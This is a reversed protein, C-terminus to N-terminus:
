VLYGNDELFDLRYNSNTVFLFLCDGDATVTQECICNKPYWIFNGPGFVGHATVMAGKIIYVGFACNFRCKPKRFGAPYRSFNIVMGTDGDVIMQKDYFPNGIPEEKEIWGSSEFINFSDFEARLLKESFIDESVIKRGAPYNENDVDFPESRNTIFLFRCDNNEPAGAVYSNGAPNWLFAGPGFIQEGAKYEGDIVYIGFAAHRSSVVERFGAGYHAFKFEAGNLIDQVMRKDYFYHGDREERETWGVEDKIHFVSPAPLQLRRKM